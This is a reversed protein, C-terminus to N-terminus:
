ALRSRTALRLPTTSELISQVKSWSNGDCMSKASTQINCSRRGHRRGILSPVICAAGSSHGLRGARDTNQWSLRKWSSLLCCRCELVVCSTDCVENKAGHFAVGFREIHHTGQFKSMFSRRTCQIARAISVEDDVLDIWSRRLM